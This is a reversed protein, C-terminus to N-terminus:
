LTTVHLVCACLGFNGALGHLVVSTLVYSGAETLASEKSVTLLDM